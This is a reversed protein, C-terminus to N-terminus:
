AGICPSSYKVDRTTPDERGLEGLGFTSTVGDVLGAAIGGLQRAVTPGDGIAISARSAAVNIPVADNDTTNLGVTLGDFSGLLDALLEHVVLLVVTQQAQCEAGDVGNLRSRLVGEKVSDLRLKALREEGNCQLM